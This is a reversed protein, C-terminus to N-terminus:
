NKNMMASNEVIWVRLLVVVRELAAELATELAAALTPDSWRRPASLWDMAFRNRKLFSGSEPYCNQRTTHAVGDSMVYEM